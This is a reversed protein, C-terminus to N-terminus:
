SRVKGARIMNAWTVLKIRKEDVEIRIQHKTKSLIIWYSVVEVMLRGMDVDIGGLDTMVSFVHEVDRPPICYNGVSAENCIKLVKNAVNIKHTRKRAREEFIEKVFGTNVEAILTAVVGGAFILLKWLIQYILEINLNTM